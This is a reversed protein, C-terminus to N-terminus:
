ADRAAKLSKWYSRHHKCTDMAGNHSNLSRTHVIGLASHAAGAFRHGQCQCAASNQLFTPVTCTHQGPKQQDVYTGCSTSFSPKVLKAHALLLSMVFTVSMLCTALYFVYGLCRTNEGRAALAFHTTMKGATTARMQRSQAVTVARKRPGQQEQDM